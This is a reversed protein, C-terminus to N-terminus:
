LTVEWGGDVPLVVGNMYPARVLFVVAKGVDEPSGERRLPIRKRIRARVDEPFDEPFAVIGPAVGCVRVKPGLEITLAKTLGHLAAKSTTYHAYRNMPRHATVDVVHVVVAGSSNKLAPLLGQTLFFPAEVNIRQMRRFRARDIQAFPVEEFIGASHVVVDLTGHTQVIRAALGDVAEDEALDASEVFARRGMAEIRAATDKVGDLSRHAHVVVDFGDGALALAIAKGVRVGAGTVLALM